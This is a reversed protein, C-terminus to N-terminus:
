KLEISGEASIINMEASMETGSYNGGRWLFYSLEERDSGLGQASVDITLTKSAMVEILTGDERVRNISLELTVSAFYADLPIRPFINITYDNYIRIMDGYTWTRIDDDIDITFYEEFNEITLNINKAETTENVLNTCSSFMFVMALCFAVIKIDIMRRM